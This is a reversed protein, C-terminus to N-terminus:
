GAPKVAIQMRWIQDAPRGKELEWPRGYRLVLSQGATGQLDAPASITQFRFITWDNGGVMGQKRGEPNEPRSTKAILVVGAPLSQVDWLYGATPTGLVRVEFSQGLKLTKSSATDAATFIIGAAKEATPQSVCASLAVLCLGVLARPMRWKM